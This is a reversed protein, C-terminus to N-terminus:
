YIRNTNRDGEWHDDFLGTISRKIINIVLASERDVGLESKDTEESCICCKIKAQDSVCKKCIWHGCGLSIPGRVIHDNTLGCQLDNFETM